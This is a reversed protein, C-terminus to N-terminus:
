LLTILFILSKICGKIMGSILLLRRGRGWEVGRCSVKVGIFREILRGNLANAKLARRAGTCFFARM